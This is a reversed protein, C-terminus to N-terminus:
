VGVGQAVPADDDGTVGVAADPASLEVLLGSDILDDQDRLRLGNRVVARQLRDLHEALVDNRRAAGPDPRLGNGGPHLSEPFRSAARPTARPSDLPGRSRRPAGLM